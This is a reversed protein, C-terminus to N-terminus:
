GQSGSATSIDAEENGYAGERQLQLQKQIEYQNANNDLEALGEAKVEDVQQMLQEVLKQQNTIEYLRKDKQFLNHFQDLGTVYAFIQGLEVTSFNNRVAEDMFLPNQGLMQLAQAVQQKSQYVASGNVRIRGLAKIDDINIDKFTYIEKKSDWYKLTIKQGKKMLLYKQLLGNILPEFIEKEFKRIQRNFVRVAATYLQNVEFMTKEGPTRFGLVEKPSGMFEEMKFEYRDILNDSSLISTDPALYSVDSDTDMRIEDGPGMADPLDVQGKIKKVPNVVFDYCDSRKNELFDIRAQMGICNELPSMAWLIDKRDRYGAHYIYHYGQIDELNEEKLIVDRDMIVIKKNKHLENKQVDYCTGYFTLLEVVDSQYYSTLTGFGGISIEDGKITDGNTIASMVDRRHQMARDFAEKMSPDKEAMLAVEGISLITRIIKPSDDFSAATPDFVIDLPNIRLAKAGEWEVKKFGDPGETQIVDWIPMAFANGADIYDEVLKGTIYEFNGDNLIERLLNKILTRNERTNSDQTFGEFFYYDSQSFLSELEYTILVDRLQTIKPIHVNAKWPASAQGYITDTTVSYLYQLTKRYREEWEAKSNNWLLWKASISDALSDHKIAANVDFTKETM